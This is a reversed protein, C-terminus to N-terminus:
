GTKQPADSKQAPEFGTSELITVIITASSNKSLQKEAIIRVVQRDDAWLVGNAADMVTGVRNDIDGRNPGRVVYDVQYSRDLPWPEKMRNRANLMILSVTDRCSKYAQPMVTRNAYVRPRAKPIPAFPLDIQLSSGGNM